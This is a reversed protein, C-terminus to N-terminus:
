MVAKGNVIVKGNKLEVEYVKKGNVSQPQILMALMMARPDQSIITFLADSLIIKTKTNIADFAAFPNAQIAALKASKSVEFSSTLSFGDMKQGKYELKKVEFDPIEMTIGKSLLAQILRNTEDENEIDVNELEKLINMDLGSVNFSFITETLKSKQGNDMFAAEAIKLKIKNSALDNVVATKNDGEITKLKASFAKTDNKGDININGIAYTYSSDYITKGTLVYNSKLNSLSIQLEDGALLAINQIQQDLSAIRDDKITGNFTSGKITLTIATEVSFTEEIDKVFGKFSSLMKNFDVHVLFAKKQLKDNLQVMFAKDSEDLDPNNLLTQPLSLPYLDASLASYSDNLYQLDVGIKLGKLAKADEISMESGQQKFFQVIKEPDDFVLVFHEEKEKVEREQITFGNQEIMTLESNVRVKMEETIQASGATFYYIVAVLLLGIIGFGLKKM